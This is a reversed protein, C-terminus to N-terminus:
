TEGTSPEPPTLRAVLEGIREEPPSEGGCARIAHELCFTLMVRQVPLPVFVEGAQWQRFRDVSYHTGLADNVLDVAHSEPEGLACVVAQYSVVLNWAEGAAGADMRRPVRWPPLGAATAAMSLRLHRPPQNIEAEWAEFTRRPVFLREAARLQTLGLERRWRRLDERNPPDPPTIQQTM